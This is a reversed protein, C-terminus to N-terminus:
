ILNKSYHCMALFFLAREVYETKGIKGRTAINEALILFPDDISQTIRKYEANMGILHTAVHLLADFACTNRLMVTKTQIKIPQCMNGNKMIPIFVADNSKVSDWEPCKDLYTNEKVKTFKKANKSALGGDM